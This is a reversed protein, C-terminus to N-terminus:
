ITVALSQLALQSSNHSSYMSTATSNCIHMFCQPWIAVGPTAATSIFLMVIGNKM